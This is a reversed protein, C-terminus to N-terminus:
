SCRKPLRRDFPLTATLRCGGRASIRLTGAGTGRLRRGRRELVTLATAPRDLSFRFGWAVGSRAATTFTWAAPAKPPPAFFDWRRAADFGRNFTDWWHIGCGLLKTPKLGAAESRAIFRDTENRVLTELFYFLAPGELAALPPAFAPSGQPGLGTFDTPAVDDGACPAANGASVFLRTAALNGLTLSPNHGIANFGDPPGFIERYRFDPIALGLISQAVLDLQQDDQPSLVGSFSAASGFYDPRQGALYMTGYGGMSLGAIAHWRRGPRVRYRAEIAPILERLIYSEWRPGGPGVWDSYFGAVGGQPMVVIGPFDRARKRIEGYGDAAWHDYAQAAGHLLYLVPYRGRPNAAYGDPLLVNVALSNARPAGGPPPAGLAVRKADVFRSPVVVTELTGAAAAGTCALSSLVVGLVVFIGRM